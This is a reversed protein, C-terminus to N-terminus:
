FKKAFSRLAEITLAKFIKKTGSPTWLWLWPIREDICGAEAYPDYFGIEASTGKLANEVEELNLIFNTSFKITEDEKKSKKQIKDDVLTPGDFIPELTLHKKTVLTM